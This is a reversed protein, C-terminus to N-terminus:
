RVLIFLWYAGVGIVAASLILRFAPRWAFQWLIRAPERGLRERVAALPTMWDRGTALAIRAESVALEVEAELREAPDDITAASMWLPELPGDKADIFDVLWGATSRMHRERPSSEPMQGIVRRAADLEGLAMLIGFREGATEPTEPTGDVFLRMAPSTRPVPLDGFLAHWHAEARTALWLYTETAAKFTRPLWRALAWAGAAAFALVFVGSWILEAWPFGPDLSVGAGELILALITTAVATPIGAILVGVVAGFLYARWRYPRWARTIAHALAAPERAEVSL